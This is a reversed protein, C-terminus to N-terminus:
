PESLFPVFVLSFFSLLREGVGSSLHSPHDYLPYVMKPARFRKIPFLTLLEQTGLCQSFTLSNMHLQSLPFAFLRRLRLGPSRGFLSQNQIGRHSPNYLQLLDEEVKSRQM